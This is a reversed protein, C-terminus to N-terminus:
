LPMDDDEDDDALEPMVADVDVRPAGFPEDDKTFQVVELSACVQADRGKPVYISILFNCWCGAYPKGDDPVLAQRKRDIIQPRGQKEARNASIVWCGATEPKGNEGDGDKICMNDSKPKVGDLETKILHHIRKNIKATTAEDSKPLLIQCGFRKATDTRNKYHEATWLKPYSLRANPVLIQGEQLTTAM